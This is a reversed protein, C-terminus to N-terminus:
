EDGEGQAPAPAPELGPTPGGSGQRELVAEGPRSARAQVRSRTGVPELLLLEGERADSLARAERRVVVSGVVSHVTVMDGRKIVLPPRVDDPEIASGAAIMRHAVSGLIASAALPNVRPSVWRSATTIDDSGVSEGRLIPRSATSVTRRVSVDATVTRTTEILGEHYITVAVATKEGLGRPEMAITRPGVLEALFAADRDNFAVRLDQERVNLVAALMAVYRAAITGPTPPPPAPPEGAVMPTAIAAAASRKTSAAARERHAPSEADPPAPLLIETADGAFELRGPHVWSQSSVARRVTAADLRGWGPGASPLEGPGGLVQISAYRDADPGTVRAVDGLTVPADPLGRVVALMEIRTPEALAQPAALLTTVFIIVNAIRM